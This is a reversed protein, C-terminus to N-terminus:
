DFSLFSPPPLVVVVFALIITGFLNSHFHCLVRLYNSPYRPNSISIDTIEAGESM